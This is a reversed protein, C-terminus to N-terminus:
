KAVGMNGGVVKVPEASLEDLAAAEAVLNHRSIEDLTCVGIQAMAFSIQESLEDLLDNLGRQGDAGMAFLLPRGLMVLDAGLALAKVVDEGYRVGSDMLLATGPGVAARIEPLVAISAPASDLQRGGHNSVWIADAGASQIRQADDTSTVGKVVLNGKWLARLKDLFHWDAAARSGTRDFANGSAADFNAMRPVGHYLTSLSWRPHVAFDLIQRMGLHFPVQFGNRLDRIRRSVQPVDVTLVLTEYGANAARSVLDLTRELSPSAYLQFWANGGARRRMEELTMSAASSLCVPLNRAVAAQALYNDAQPHSL